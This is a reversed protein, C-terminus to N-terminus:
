THLKTQDHNAWIPPAHSPPTHGTAWMLMCLHKVTGTHELPDIRLFYGAHPPTKAGTKQTCFITSKTRNVRRHSQCRM